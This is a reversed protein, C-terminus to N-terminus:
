WEYTVADRVRNYSSWWEVIEADEDGRRGYLGGDDIDSARLAEAREADSAGVDEIVPEVGAAHAIALRHSGEVALWVGMDEDWWARITPAGHERMYASVAAYHETHASVAHPAIIRM